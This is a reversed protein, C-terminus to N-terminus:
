FITPYRQAIRLYMERKYLRIYGFTELIDFVRKTLGAQFNIKYTM